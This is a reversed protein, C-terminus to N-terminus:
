KDERVVVRKLCPIYEFDIDLISLDDSAGYDVDLADAIESPLPLDDDFRWRFPYVEDGYTTRKLLVHM